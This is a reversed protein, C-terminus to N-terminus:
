QSILWIEKQQRGFMVGGGDTVKVVEERCVRGRSTIIAPELTFTMNRQLTNDLSAKQPNKGASIGGVHAYLGIEHGFSGSYGEPYGCERMIRDGIQTLEFSNVGTRMAACVATNIKGLTAFARQVEEPPVTEGAKLAYFTRQNDSAFGDIRVGLDVNIVDGGQIFVGKPPHTCMYSSRTGVSVFPNNHKHWSYGFGKADIISQFLRQIDEGSMGIRLQGRAEDYIDMAADVALAIKDAEYDSKRGRIHKMINESSVIDGTFGLSSLINDVLQFDSHSLGDSSADAGSFNLAIISFPMLRSLQVTLAEVFSISSAYESVESFLGLSSFEESDLAGCVCIRQGTRTVIIATRSIVEGPLLYTFAPDSLISSERTVSLWIDAGCLNLAEVARTHRGNYIHIGGQINLIPTIRSPTKGLSLNRM